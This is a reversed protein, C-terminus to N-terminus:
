ESKILNIVVRFEGNQPAIGHTVIITNVDQRVVSPYVQINDASRYIFVDVDKSGLNHSITNVTNGGYNQSYSDSNSSPPKIYNAYRSM